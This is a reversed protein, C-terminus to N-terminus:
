SVFGNDYFGFCPCVNIRGLRLLIWSVCLGPFLKIKKTQNRHSHRRKDTKKTDDPKKFVVDPTSDKDGFVSGKEEQPQIDM